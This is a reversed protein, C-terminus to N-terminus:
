IETSNAADLRSALLEALRTPEPLRHDRTFRMVLDAASALAVRHGPSVVLPLCGPRSRLLWGLQRRERNRLATYAGRTEHPEPGSGTLIARAVGICPLGSAVGFHAAIGLGQPHAIGHGDVFALDPPRPLAALAARLAPLARFPLLEPLDSVPTPLSVSESALVELTGADLLIATAHVVAGDDSFDTRFGGITALDRPFRDRLELQGALRSRLLRAQELTGDQDIPAACAAPGPRGALSPPPLPM